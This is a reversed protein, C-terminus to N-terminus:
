LVSHLLAGIAGAGFTVAFFGGHAGEPDSVSDAFAAALAELSFELAACRERLAQAEAAATAGSPSSAAGDHSATAPRSPSFDLGRPSIGSRPMRPSGATSGGGGGVSGPRAPSGSGGLSKMLLARKADAQITRKTRVAETHSSRLDLLLVNRGIDNDRGARDM